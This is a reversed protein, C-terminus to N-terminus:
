GEGQVCVGQADDRIHDILIPMSLHQLHYIGSHLRGADLSPLGITVDDTEHKLNRHLASCLDGRGFAINIRHM